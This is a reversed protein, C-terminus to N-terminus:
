RRCPLFVPSSVSPGQDLDLLAPWCGRSSKEIPLRGGGEDPPRCRLELPNQDDVVLRM